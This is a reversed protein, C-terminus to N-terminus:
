KIGLKAALSDITKGSKGYLEADRLRANLRAREPKKSSEKGWKKDLDYAAEVYDGYLDRLEANKQLVTPDSELLKEIADRRKAFTAYGGSATVVPEDKAAPPTDKVPAPAPDKAAVPAPEPKPEPKAPPADKKVPKADDDKAEDKADDKADDDKADAVADDAAGKADAVAAAAKKQAAEANAMMEAQKKKSWEAAEAPDTPMEGLESPVDGTSAITSGGSGFGRITNIVGSVFGWGAGLLSLVAVVKLVLLVWKVVEFKVMWQYTVYVTVLSGVVMLLPGLLNIFPIPVNSLIAGLASPVALIIGLTMSQLFYNSRSRADSKGKLKTIVWEFVRHFFFGSVVAGIVAGIAPGIPLFATLNFVHGPGILAGIGGGIAPLASAIFLSPLAYGIIETKGLPETPQEEITNRVTGVPNVLLKPVNVLYYAIGKPVGVFMAGIGKGGAAEEPPAADGAPAASKKQQPAAPATKANAPPPNPKKAAAAPAPKVPKGPAITPAAPEEEEEEIQVVEFESQGVTFSAGEQLQVPRPAKAGQPVALTELLWMGGKLSVRAQRRSISNDEIQIDADGGVRGFIFGEPPVVIDENTSLDRLTVQGM